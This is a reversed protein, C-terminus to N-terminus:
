RRAHRGGNRVHVALEEPMLKPPKEGTAAYAARGNLVTERDEPLVSSRLDLVRSDPIRAKEIMALEAQRRLVPRLAAAPVSFRRAGFLPSTKIKIEDVGTRECATVHFFSNCGTRLGQGVAIGVERLNSLMRPSIGQPLIDTLAEPVTARISRVGVFLPLDRTGGDLGLFWRRRSIRQELAAWERKLDFERVKIGCRTGPYGAYLWAAFEAEPRAAACAGAVLSDQAAAEPAVQVWLPM